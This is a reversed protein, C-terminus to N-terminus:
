LSNKVVPAPFRYDWAFRQPKKNGCGPCNPIKIFKHQTAHLRNYSFESFSGLCNSTLGLLIQSVELALFQLIANHFGPHSIWSKGISKEELMRFSYAANLEGEDYNSLLRIRMCQFCASNQPLVFPGVQGSIGECSGFLVPLKCGIAFSNILNATSLRYPFNWCVLLNKDSGIRKSLYEIFFAATWNEEAAIIKPNMGNQQFTSKCIEKKDAPTLLIFKAKKLVKLLTAGEHVYNYFGYLEADGATGERKDSKLNSFYICNNSVLQQLLYYVFAKDVQRKKAVASMIKATHSETKLTEMIEIIVGVVETTQFSVTFNPFAIQLRDASQLLLVAGPKLRIYTQIELYPSINM